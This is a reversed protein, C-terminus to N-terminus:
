GLHADTPAWSPRRRQERLGAPWGPFVPAWTYADYLACVDHMARKIRARAILVGYQAHRWMLLLLSGRGRWRAQACPPCRSQAGRAATVAQQM